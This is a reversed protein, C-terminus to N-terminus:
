VLLFVYDLLSFSIQYRLPFLYLPLPAFISCSYDSVKLLPPLLHCYSLNPAYISFSVSPCIQFIDPTSHVPLARPKVLTSLSSSIFAYYRLKRRSRLLPLVMCQAPFASLAPFCFASQTNELFVLLETGLMNAQLM